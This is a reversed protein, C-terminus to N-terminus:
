LTSLVPLLQRPTTDKLVVKGAADILYLSPFTAFLYSGDEDIAGNDCADTWAEPFSPRTSRWEALDGPAVALVAARGQEVRISLMIDAALEAAFRHCVDCAPDYFLLVVPRGAYDSLRGTRGARDTFAFDSAQTGPMNKVTMDLMWESRLRDPFDADIMARLFMVYLAEDRMPSAGAFLYDEATQSFLAALDDSRRVARAAAAAAEARVSDSSVVPMVSLFNAFNLAMTDPVLADAVDLSDWFHMVLYDAREAPTRLTSPVAPLPLTRASLFFAAVSVAAAIIISFRKM